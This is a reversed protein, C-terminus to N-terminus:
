GASRHQIFEMPLFYVKASLNWLRKQEAAVYRLKDQSVCGLAVKLLFCLTYM